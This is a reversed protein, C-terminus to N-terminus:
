VEGEAQAILDNLCIETGDELTAWGDEFTVPGKVAQLLKLADLMQQYTGQWTAANTTATIPTARNSHKHLIDGAKEISGLVNRKHEEDDFRDPCQYAAMDRMARLTQVLEDYEAKMVEITPEPEQGTITIAEDFIDEWCGALEVNDMEAFGIRGGEVADWRDETSFNHVRHQTLEQIAEERTLTVAKAPTEDDLNPFLESTERTIGGDSSFTDTTYELTEGLTGFMNCLKTYAEEPNEAEITILVNHFTTEM